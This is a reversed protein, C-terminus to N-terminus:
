DKICRVSEGMVKDWETDGIVFQSDTSGELVKCEEDSPIHWGTPCIGQSGSITDYGMMEHWQYLGGYMECYSTFNLYCYKEVIGNNTMEETGQIMTGVNLNEKLWCQNFIQVTNYVQGEYNVTPTGTCRLTEM